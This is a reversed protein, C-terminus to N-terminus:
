AAWHVEAENLIAAVPAEEPPLTQARDLAERKDQGTIILHLSMADCIVRASLSVRTCDLGAARMSVLVPAEPDLALRLNDGRPFLSATHMDAGMGLLAVSVPLLPAIRSEVDSLADEPDDGGEYFPHFTAASARGTLLRQKVLAANSRPDSEPVWREDSLIVDVRSWDLDADCLADFIPGPTSGGPVVLTARDEHMLAATLKGALVNALNIALMEADAYENLTM